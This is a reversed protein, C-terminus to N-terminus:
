RSHIPTVPTEGDIEYRSTMQTNAVNRPFFPKTPANLFKAPHLNLFLNSSLYYNHLINLLPHRHQLFNERELLKLDLYM